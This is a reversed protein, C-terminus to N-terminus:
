ALGSFYISPSVPSSGPALLVDKFLATGLVFKAISHGHAPSFSCLLVFLLPLAASAVISQNKMSHCYDPVESVALM